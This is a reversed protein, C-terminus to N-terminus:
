EKWFIKWPNHKLERLLEQLDDYVAEDRMFAGVTGKGDRVREILQRAEQASGHVSSVLAETEATIEQYRKLQPESALVNSVRNLDAVLTQTETLLPGLSRNVTQTTSEVNSLINGIQPNEVYRERAALLTENAQVSLTELNDVVRDLKAGNKEFFQGTGRLTRHLGEFTERVMTENQTIGVYTYHLLEYAESLLLDLRPPSIGQVVANNVLVPRQVTGPDVALFFEGLVGQTSIFWRSDDHISSQYRKDVEAVVRILTGEALAEPQDGRFDVSAVKGIKVGSLRLPAGAKLGGPNTFDVNIRYTPQFNLGGMVVIFGALLVLAVLILIGVKVEIRHQQSV